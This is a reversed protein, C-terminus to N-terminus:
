DMLMDWKGEANIYYTIGDSMEHLETNREADFYSRREFMPRGGQENTLFATLAKLTPAVEHLWQADGEKVFAHSM